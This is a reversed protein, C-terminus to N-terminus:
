NNEQPPYRVTGTHIDYTLVTDHVTVTYVRYDRSLAYVEDTLETELLYGYLREPLQDYILVGPLTSGRGDIESWESDADFTLVVGGSVEIRCGGDALPTFSDIGQSPFYQSVFGAVAQPMDDWDGDATSCSPTLAAILWLLILSAYNRIKM